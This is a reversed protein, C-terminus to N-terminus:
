EARIKSAGYDEIHIDTSVQVPITSFTNDWDAKVRRWVQPHQIRLAEGFGGVDARLAHMKAVTQEALSNVKEQLISEQKGLLRNSGLDENLSFSESLRGESTMRVRFSIDGGQVTAKISSKAKKIEYVINKRTKPDIAKLTGGSLEGRMWMLGEVESENLFGGYTQTKGKIVGAGALKIGKEGTIVNPLIFSSKARMPGIVKALAMPKALRSNRKRSVFVDKLVYAPIQGPISEQLADGAKDTSILLQVSPRIDNDSLFFNLLEYIPIKRLLSSSIIVTKLHYGIPPRNTRLAIERIIEFVSDGTETINFFKKKQSSSRDSGGSEEPIIFQFTGTIVEKRPYDGGKQKIQEEQPSPEAVDMAIGTELNLDEVPSSSWCGSLTSCILIVAMGFIGFRVSKM